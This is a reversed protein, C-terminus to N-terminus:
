GPKSETKKHDKAGSERDEGTHDDEDGGLVPVPAVDSLQFFWEPDSRLRVIHPRRCIECGDSAEKEEVAAVIDTAYKGAPDPPRSLHTWLILNKM